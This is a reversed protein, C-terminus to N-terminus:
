KAARKGGFVTYYDGLHKRRAVERFLHSGYCVNLGHLHIYAYSRKCLMHPQATLRVRLKDTTYLLGSIM